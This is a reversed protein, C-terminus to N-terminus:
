SAISLIVFHQHYFLAIVIRSDHDRMVTALDGREIITKTLGDKYHCSPLLGMIKHWLNKVKHKKCTRATIDHTMRAFRFRVKTGGM